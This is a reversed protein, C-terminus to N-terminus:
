DYNFAVSFPTDRTIKQGSRLEMEFRLVYDGTELSKTNFVPHVWLTQQPTRTTEEPYLAWRTIPEGRELVIFEITNQTAEELPGAIEVLPYLRDGKSVTTSLHLGFPKGGVQIQSDQEAINPDLIVLPTVETNDATLALVDLTTSNFSILNKSPIEVQVQLTFRGPPVLMTIERAYHLAQSETANKHPAAMSTEFRDQVYTQGHHDSLQYALVFKAEYQQGNFQFDLSNMPIGLRGLLLSQNPDRAFFALEAAVSLENGSGPSFGMGRPNDPPPTPNPVHVQPNETERVLVPESPPADEISPTSKKSEPPPVTDLSAPEPQPEPPKVKPVAPAPDPLPIEPKKETMPPSKKPITPKAETKKAPPPASQPPAQNKVPPSPAQASKPAQTIGTTPKLGMSSNAPENGFDDEGLANGHDLDSQFNQSGFSGAPARKLDRHLVFKYKLNRIFHWSLQDTLATFEGFTSVPVFQVRLEKRPFEYGVSNYVWLEPQFRIFRNTYDMGTLRYDVRMEVRDPKGLLLFIQGKASKPTKNGRDFNAMVYDYRALYNRRFPNIGDDLDPDRKAWFLDVFAARKGPTRLKKRFIRREESTIIPEVLNLWAAEEKSLEKAPMPSPSAMAFSALFGILLRISM